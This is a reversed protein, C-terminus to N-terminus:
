KSEITKTSLVKGDKDCEFIWQKHCKPCEWSVKFGKDNPEQTEVLNVLCQECCPKEADLKGEDVLKHAQKIGKKFDELNLKDM